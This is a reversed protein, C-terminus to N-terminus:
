EGFELPRDRRDRLHSSADFFGWGDDDVLFGDRILGDVDGITGATPDVPWWLDNGSATLSVTGYNPVVTGDRAYLWTLTSKLSQHRNEAGKRVTALRRVFVESDVTGHLGGGPRIWVGAGSGWVANCDGM